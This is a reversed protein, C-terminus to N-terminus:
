RTTRPRSEDTDSSVSAFPMVFRNTSPDVTSLPAGGGGGAAVSFDVAGTPLVLPRPALNPERRRTNRMLSRRVSSDHFIPNASNAVSSSAWPAMALYRAEGLNVFADFVTATAKMWVQTNTGASSSTVGSLACRTKEGTYLGLM